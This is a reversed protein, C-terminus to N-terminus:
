ETYPEHPPSVEPFLRETSFILDPESDKSFSDTTYEVDDVGPHSSHLRSCLQAYAARGNAAAVTITVNHFTYEPLPASKRNPM